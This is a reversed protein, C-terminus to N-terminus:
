ERLGLGCGTVVARARPSAQPSAIYLGAQGGGHKPTRGSCARAVVRWLLSEGPAVRQQQAVAPPQKPALGGPGRRGTCAWGARAQRHTGCLVAVGGGRLSLQLRSVTLGQRGHAGDVSGHAHSAQGRSFVHGWALFSRVEQKVALHPSIPRSWAFETRAVM